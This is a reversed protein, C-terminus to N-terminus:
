EDLSLPLMQICVLEAPQPQPLCLDLADPGGASDPCVHVLLKAIWRRSSGALVM